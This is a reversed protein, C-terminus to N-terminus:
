RRRARSPQKADRRLRKEPEPRALRDARVRYEDRIVPAFLKRHILQGVRREIRRRLNRFVFGTGRPDFLDMRAFQRYQAFARLPVLNLSTCRPFYPWLTLPELNLSKVRAVEFGTVRRYIIFSVINMSGCRHM